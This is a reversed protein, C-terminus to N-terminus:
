LKQRDVRLHWALAVAGALLFISYLLSVLLQLWLSHIETIGCKWAFLNMMMMMVMSMMMAM